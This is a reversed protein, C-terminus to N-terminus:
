AQAGGGGVTFGGPELGLRRVATEWRDEFPVEFLLDDHLPLPIWAGASVENEVQMPGWGAYGLVLHFAGAGPDRALAEVLARSGGVAVHTALRMEEEGVALSGPRFLVWLREPQVPGGVLVPGADRGRSRAAQRLGPGVVELVDGATLTAPRNVVFGLAGEQGHKAMLVLAGAFNPDGLTPSAVLLGPALSTATGADTM